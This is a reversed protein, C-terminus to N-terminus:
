PVGFNLTWWRRFNEPRPKRQQRCHRMRPQFRSPLLLPFGPLRSPLRKCCAYPRPIFHFFHCPLWINHWRPERSLFDLTTRSAKDRIALPCSKSRCGQAHFDHGNEREGLGREAGWSRSQVAPRNRRRSAHKAFGRRRGALPSPSRQSDSVRNERDGFHSLKRHNGNANVAPCRAVGVQLSINKGDVAGAM